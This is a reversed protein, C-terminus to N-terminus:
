RYSRDSLDLLRQEFADAPPRRPARLLDAVMADGLADKLRDVTKRPDRGDEILGQLLDRFLPPLDTVSGVTAALTTYREDIRIAIEHERQVLRQLEADSPPELPIEPHSASSVKEARDLRADSGAEVLANNLRGFRHMLTNQAYMALGDAAARGRPDSAGGEAAELDHGLACQVSLCEVIFFHELTALTGVEALLEDRNM